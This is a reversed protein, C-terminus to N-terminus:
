FFFLGFILVLEVYFLVLTPSLVAFVFVDHLIFVNKTVFYFIVVLLASSLTGGGDRVATAGGGSM